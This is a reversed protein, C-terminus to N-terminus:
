CLVLNRAQNQRIEQCDGQENSTATFGSKPDAIGLLSGVEILGVEIVQVIARLEDDQINVVPHVSRDTRSLWHREDHGFTDATVVIASTSQDIARATSTNAPVRPLDRSRATERSSRISASVSIRRSM